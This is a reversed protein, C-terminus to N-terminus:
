SAEGTSVEKAFTPNTPSTQWARGLLLGSALDHRDLAAEDPRRPQVARLILRCFRSM